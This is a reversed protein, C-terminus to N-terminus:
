HGLLAQLVTIVGQDTNPPALYRARERVQPHGDAMAFSWDAADLMQLDNLYDGFVVTQAPGVGLVQQLSRLGVGKDVGPAMLDLWKPGSIVVQCRDAFVDFHERAAAAADDGDYIALKLIDDDVTTLDEVHALRHYYKAFEDVFVPDDREAYGGGVGCVVLGLDRDATARRSAAIVEAALQPDIVTGATLTGEHAVLNGNEAIYSIGEPDRAFLDALTYYQRGSAPVFRIGRRRMEALLPWFADPVQGTPTLLTGDMDAVVLRLDDPPM